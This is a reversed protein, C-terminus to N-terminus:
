LTKELKKIKLWSKKLNENSKKVVLSLYADDVMLKGKVMLPLELKDTGILECIFGKKCSIIGSRKWGALQAKKLLLQADKLSKCAVHLICPEQKFKILKSRAQRIIKGNTVLRKPHALTKVKALKKGDVELDPCSNTPFNSTPSAIEDFVRKLKALTILDHFVAKFLDPGKREKDVLIVIRGACSSTTYYNKMKNIKRCLEKIKEDWHRKSSKDKKSLIDRKRKDFNDIQM